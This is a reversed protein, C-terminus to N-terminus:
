SVYHLTELINRQMISWEHWILKKFLDMKKLGFCSCVDVHKYIVERLLEYRHRQFESLTLDAKGKDMM